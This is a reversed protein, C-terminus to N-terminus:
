NTQPGRGGSIPPRTPRRRTRAMVPAPDAPPDTASLPPDAPQEASSSSGLQYCSTEDGGKSDEVNPSSNRPESEFGLCKLVGWIFEQFYNCPNQLFFPESSTVKNKESTEEM